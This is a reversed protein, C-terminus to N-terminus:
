VTIYLPYKPIRGNEFSVGITNHWGNEIAFFTVEFATFLTYVVLM